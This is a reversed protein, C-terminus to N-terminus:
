SRVEKIVELMSKVAEKIEEPTNSYSLGITVASLLEEEPLGIAMLTRSVVKRDEAITKVATSVLIDKLLLREAFSEGDMYEIYPEFVITMIAPSSNDSEIIKFEIGASVMESILLKKLKQLHKKESNKVEFIEELAYQFSLASFLNEETCFGEKVGYFLPDIPTGERVFLIGSGKISGIEEGGITMLDINLKSPKPIDLYSLSADLHVIASVKKAINCIGEVNHKVGTEYNIESFSLFTHNINLNEELFELSYRGDSDVPIEVLKLSRKKLSRAPKLISIPETSGVLFSDGKGEMAVPCGLIAINNAEVSGSVFFIERARVGLLEAVRERAVEIKEKLKEQYCFSDRPLDEVAQRLGQLVSPRVPLSLNNNLFIKKKSESEKKKERL